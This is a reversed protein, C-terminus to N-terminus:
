RSALQVFPTLTNASNNHPTIASQIWPRGDLREIVRFATKDNQFKYHESSMSQMMQRDGILYYGFDVFSIDGTTGLAPTKETFYVPRGLITVPPTATGPNTYNGMWVPGGGTGVSLAMTALEPFTDISCIWVARGLATPLMRAYMGVVNEWVITKTAQGAQAAVQVSAPCNVFGLPEGVGTGTMFAIDEFWAIARPFITDFFSGFAPADALLENPVEAYGTLKKADLVVRGFSAQSEVLQAAEETWYCVVGGFVSSVQSTVDIMPIPVRLSDMPIVQARPRVVADELAVQLIQSRLVEPILFGGDAPVESGFSNQIDLAARRKQGLVASNKLTEYRPWIAQFFESTSEFMMSGDSGSKAKMERELRAGFSGANYAAGKGHSVANPNFKFDSSANTFNLRRGGMGNERMFDALGMQVQEQIQAKMQADKDVVSRAYVGIFEKFKGPETMMNRVNGPDALFEELEEPRTPIVVAVM